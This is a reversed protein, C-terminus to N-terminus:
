AILTTVVLVTLKWVAMWLGLSLTLIFPVALRRALRPGDRRGIGRAFARDHTPALPPDPALGTHSM